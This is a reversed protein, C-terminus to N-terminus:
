KSLLDKVAENMKEYKFSFKHEELKKSIVWRSKLLLETETRLLFAGIELLFKPSPIGFPVNLAARLNKMFMKNPIPNPASCNIIGEIKTNEITFDIIRVLDEIHIWSFHQDGKGHKGGLGILTMKKYPIFAGGTKGLVIAIRLKVKRTSITVEDVSKEWAKAVEISFGEGIRSSYEDNPSEREDRYITATSANIWVNPTENIEIFAKELVKVSNTRSTLIQEKNKASYRCDVSKGTLNILVDTGKLQEQWNELTKGDWSEHKEGWKSPKLQRTLVIIENKKQSFHQILHSGIFGSGGAIVIKM